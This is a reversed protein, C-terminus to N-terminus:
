LKSRYPFGLRVPRRWATFRMKSQSFFQISFFLWRRSQRRRGSFTARGCAAFDVPLDVIDHMLMQWGECCLNCCCQRVFRFIEDGLRHLQSDQFSHGVCLGFIKGGAMAPAYHAAEPPALDFKVVVCALANLQLFQLTKSENAGAREGVHAARGHREGGSPEM